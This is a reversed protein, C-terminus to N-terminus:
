SLSEEIDRSDFRPLRSAYGIDPATLTKVLWRFPFGIGICGLSFLLDYPLQYWTGNRAQEFVWPQWEPYSGPGAVFYLVLLSGLMYVLGSVHVAGLGSVVALLQALSSRKEKTVLGSLGAALCLGILYGFTPQTYYTIGGGEAFAYVGILPGVVGVVLMLVGAAAGLPWGLIYGAFIAAPVQPTYATFRVSGVAQKLGPLRELVKAQYPAPVARVASQATRLCYNRLNQNTATPLNFSLFGSFFLLQTVLLLLVIQGVASRRPKLPADM